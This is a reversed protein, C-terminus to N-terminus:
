ITLEQEEKMQRALAFTRAMILMGIGVLLPYPSPTEDMTIRFSVPSVAGLVYCYEAIVFLWNLVYVALLSVGLWLFGRETGPSFLENRQIGRTLRIFVVMTVVLASGCSLALLARLMDMVLVSQTPSVTATLKLREPTCEVPMGTRSDMDYFSHVDGDNEVNAYFVRLNENSTEIYGDNWGQAFEPVITFLEVVISFVTALLLLIGLMKFNKM